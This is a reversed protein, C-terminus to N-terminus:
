STNEGKLANDGPVPLNDGLNLVRLGALMGLEPPIQGTLNNDGLDLVQLMSMGALEPPLVGTLLNEPLRVEIVRGMAVEIGHWTALNAATVVSSNTVDWSTNNRWNDGDTAIYLARLARWDEELSGAPQQASIREVGFPAVACIMVLSLGFGIMFHRRRM